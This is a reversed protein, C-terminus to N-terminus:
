SEERARRALDDAIVKLLDCEALTEVREMLDRLLGMTRVREEARGIAREVSVMRARESTASM